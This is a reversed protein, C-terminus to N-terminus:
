EVNMVGLVAAANFCGHVVAATALWPGAHSVAPPRRDRLAARWVGAVGFGAILSCGAHLAVCATWRWLILNPSPDPFYITLYLANEIAAFGVGAALLTLLIQWSSRFLYPRTEAVWLAAAAKMLEEIIPAVFIASAAGLNNRVGFATQAFTGVVAAPGAVGVLGLVVLWSRWAPTAARRADLWDAYGGRRGGALEASYLPEDFVSSLHAPGATVDRRVIPEPSAHGPRLHPEDWVNHLADRDARPDRYPLPQSM